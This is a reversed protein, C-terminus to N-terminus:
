GTPRRASYWRYVELIVCIGVEAAVSIIRWLAAAVLATEASVAGALLEVQLVDRVMLGGPVLSLFGAVVPLTVSEIWIPLQAIPSIDNVGLAKLTAWLSLAMVTWAVLGAVIGMAILRWTIGRAAAETEGGNGEQEAGVRAALWRAVPPVIPLGVLVALGAALWAYYTPGDHRVALLVAALMGGVAMLTLTELFICVVVRRLGCGARVLVGTRLIAVLAKGPVYKGLHGLYYARIAESLPPREGLNRLAATLYLAQPLLSLVYLLASAAVWGWALQLQASTLKQWGDRVTDGAFYLVLLVVLVTVAWRMAHRAWPSGALSRVLPHKKM